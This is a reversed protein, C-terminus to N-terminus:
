DYDYYDYVSTSYVYMINLMSYLAVSMIKRITSQWLTYLPNENQRQDNNKYDHVLETSLVPSHRM